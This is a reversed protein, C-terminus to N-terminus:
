GNPPEPCTAARHREELTRVLAILDQAGYITVVVALYSFVALGAYWIVTWLAIWVSM